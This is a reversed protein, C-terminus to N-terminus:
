KNIRPQNTRLLQNSVWNLIIEHVIDYHNQNTKQHYQSSM